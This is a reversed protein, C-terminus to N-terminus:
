AGGDEGRQGIRGAAGDEVPQGLALGRHHLEGPGERDALRGDRAVELNQFVGPQDGAPDVAAPPGATEGARRQGLDLGPQGLQARRQLGVIGAEVIHEGLHLGCGGFGGVLLGSGHGRGQFGDEVAVGAERDGPMEVRRGIQDIAGMGVGAQDLAPHEPGRAPRHRMALDVGPRTAGEAVVIGSGLAGAERDEAGEERGPEQHDDGGAHRDGVQQRRDAAADARLLRLAFRLAHAADLALRDADAAELAKDGYLVRGDLMVLRVTQPKAALLAGYPDAITGGIITIDARKGVELTGVYQDIGLAIAADSTVMHFLREPTLVDGFHQNDWSDAFRLEDLM